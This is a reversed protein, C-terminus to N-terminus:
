KKVSPTNTSEPSPSKDKDKKEVQSAPPKGLPGWKADKTLTYLLGVDWVISFIWGIILAVVLAKPWIASKEAYHDHLDVTSGPPLEAIDTLRTGFPVNIRATTNIAWGNADLIPGLNRRRL